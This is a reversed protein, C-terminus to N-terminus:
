KLPTDFHISAHVRYTHQGIDEVAGDWLQLKYKKVDSRYGETMTGIDYVRGGDRYTGFEISHVLGWHPIACEIVLKHWKLNDKTDGPLEHLPVVADFEITPLEDNKQEVACKTESFATGHSAFLLSVALISFGLQKM